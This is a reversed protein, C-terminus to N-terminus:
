AALQRLWRGLAAAFAAPEEAHPVAASGAFVELAAAPLRRLWLDAAEVPPRRCARGWALWVPCELRSLLDAVRHHLRGGAHAALAHRARPLRAARWHHEVLAADVREPAAFVDRRLHRAIAGRSTLLDLAAGGALPLPVLARVPAAPLPGEGAHDLGCPVVLGLGRVLAPRNVAVQVAYAATEGAAVVVAPERVVEALFDEVLDLYLDPTYLLPPKESRGWGLLDPVYVHYHPALREAARLWEGGDHGPGLSHLLVLPPGFGLEQFSVAGLDWAYRRARGWPAPSLPRSRRRLVAGALASLAVAAM